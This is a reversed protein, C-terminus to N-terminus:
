AMSELVNAVIRIASFSPYVSLFFFDFNVWLRVMLFTLIECDRMKM